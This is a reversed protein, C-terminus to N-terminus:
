SLGGKEKRRRRGEPEGKACQCPPRRRTVTGTARAPNFKQHDNKVKEPASQPCGWGEQVGGRGRLEGTHGPAPRAGSSRFEFQKRSGTPRRGPVRARPNSIMIM